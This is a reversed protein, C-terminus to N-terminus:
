PGAPPEPPTPLDPLTINRFISEVDVDSLQFLTEIGEGAAGSLVESSIFEQTTRRSDQGPLFTSGINRSIAGLRNEILMERDILAPALPTDPSLPKRSGSVSYVSVMEAMNRNLVSKNQAESYSPDMQVAQSFYNGAQAYDGADEMELGMCYAMFAQINKTPIHQIRQREEPTIEIGMQDIVRFVIDKELEFLRTLNDKLTVPSSVDLTNIDSYSIDVHFDQDNLVAFNGQILRGAGLLKGMKPTSTVDMLGTQSLKMEDFLAQLRIREVVHIQKIQGLDTMMMEAVGKGMPTYKDNLGMDKLPLVAVADSSTTKIELLAESQMLRQIDSRIKQRSLLLYQAEMKTRYEAPNQVQKYRGYVQIARETDERMELLRALYFLTQADRPDMRYATVLSKVSFKYMKMEFLASGLDRYARASKPNQRVGMILQKLRIKQVEPSPGADRPVSCSMCLGLLLVNWSHIRTCFAMPREQFFSWLGM